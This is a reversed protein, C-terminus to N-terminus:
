TLRNVEELFPDYVDLEIDGWCRVGRTGRVEAIGLRVLKTRIEGESLEEGGERFRWKNYADFVDAKPTKAGSVKVIVDAVFRSFTDLEAKYENTAALVASPPNLGNQNWEIAGKIAWNLIGPFEDRLKQPLDGDRDEEPIVVDFPILHIRRWMAPDDVNVRPRFNTAMWLKLEPVFDFYEGYLYRATFKDGSTLGKVLSQAIKQKEEGEMATVMRAGLLRAIDNNIGSGNSKVMLTEMPTNLGYSGVLDRIINLFVSKGNAGSGYAIFFCQEKMSATLSYGAARQLYSILDTSGGMIREIFGLFAPCEADPDFKAATIKTCYDNRDNPKVTGDKLNISFGETNLLMPDADLQDQDIQMHHRSQEIMGKLRPRNGSQRVWDLFKRQAIFDPFDQAEAPFSKVTQEALYELRAKDDVRWYQGNWALWKGTDFCYLLNSIHQKSFVNANGIDSPRLNDNAANSNHGIGIPQNLELWDIVRDVVDAGILQKLRPFGTSSDDNDIRAETANVTKVRDSVETDGAGLCVAKIFDEVDDKFWGARLLGGSFAMAIEHRKGDAWHKALLSAAALHQVNRILADHDITAPSGDENFAIQEGSEHTSPPFVTQAGNGRFEVLMGEDGPGSFGIRSGCKSVRYIRHSRPAGPRGFIMGTPPLFKDAMGIAEPCDLDIDLVGGSADGLVIGINLKKGDPFDREIDVNSLTQNQWGAKVPMKDKYEVPIPTMDQSVYSEAAISIANAM